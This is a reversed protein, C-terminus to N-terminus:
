GLVEEYFPEVSEMLHKWDFLEARREAHKKLNKRLVSDNLLTVIADALSSESQGILFGAEGLTPKIDGVDNAIVACGLAMYEPLKVPTRARNQICDTMPMLAIDCSKLVSKKEGEPLWGLFNVQKGICLKEALREFEPRREGDGIVLLNLDVKKLASAVAPLIYTLESTTSLTGVIAVSNRPLRTKKVHRYSDLNVGNPLYAIPKEYNKRRLLTRLFLADVITGDAHFPIRQEYVTHINRIIPPMFRGLGANGEWDDWDVVMKKSKLRAAILAPLSAYPVTKSGHVLDFDRRIMTALKPISSLLTNIRKMGTRPPVEILEFPISQHSGEKLRKSAILTVEHGREHLFTGINILRRGTAEWIDFPSVLCIKM